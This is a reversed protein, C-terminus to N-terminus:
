PRPGAPDLVVALHVWRNVPVPVANTEVAAGAGSAIYARFGAAPGAGTVAAGLRRSRGARLRLVAARARRLEPFALRHRQPRGRREPSPRSAPCLQGQGSAPPREPRVPDQVFAAGDGRLAAHFNNRSRDEANGNFVYRAVLATEGIGDLIQDGGGATQVQGLGTFSPPVTLLLATLVIFIRTKTMTSLRTLAPISRRVSGAFLNGSRRM